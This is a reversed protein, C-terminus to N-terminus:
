ALFDQPVPSDLVTLIILPIFPSIIIIELFATAILSFDTPM